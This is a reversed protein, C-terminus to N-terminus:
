RTPIHRESKLYTHTIGGTDRLTSTSIGGSILSKTDFLRFESGGPFRLKKSLSYDLTNQHIFRPNIAGKLTNWNSNQFAYAYVQRSNRSLDLYPKVVAKASLQQQTLASGTTRQGANLGIDSGDEYVCFRREVIPKDSDELFVRIGYNGSLRIRMESNPFVVKYHQYNM